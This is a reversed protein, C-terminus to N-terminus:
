TPPSSALALGPERSPLPPVAAADSRGVRRGRSRLTRQPAVSCSSWASCQYRLESAAYARPYRARDSRYNIWANRRGNISPDVKAEHGGTGGPQWPGLVHNIRMRPLARRRAKRRSNEYWHAVYEAGMSWRHPQQTAITQGFSHSQRHLTATSRYLQHFVVHSARCASIQWAGSSIRLKISLPSLLTLFPPM